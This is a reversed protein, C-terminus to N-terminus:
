IKDSTQTSNGRDSGGLNVEKLLRDVEDVPVPRPVLGEKIVVIGETAVLHTASLM